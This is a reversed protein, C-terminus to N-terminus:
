KSTNVFKTQVRFGSGPFSCKHQFIKYLAYKKSVVQVDDSTPAQVFIGDEYVVKLDELTSPKEPDRITRLIDIISCIRSFLGNTPIFQRDYSGYITEKLETDDNYGLSKLLTNPENMHNVNTTSQMNQKIQPTAVQAVEISLNKTGNIIKDVTGESSKTRFFSLM